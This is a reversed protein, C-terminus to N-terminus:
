APDVTVIPEAAADTTTVATWSSTTDDEKYVTLTTGALGTKNRIRRLANLPSRDAEGTVASMDRKLLADANELATPIDSVAAPAAPILDTKAKIAAVETDVYGTLTSLNAASALATLGAGAAGIEATDVLVAAIETAIEGFSGAAVHDAQAEDWVADAIAAATPASGGTPALELANTTYRYVAGDLELATDLKDTVAKIAAVETDVFDDIATVSAQTALATLGSGTGLATVVDAASHTSFGTATAWAADGRNRLAELSDTATDFTAGSMGTLTAPITTGTDVLIDDVIGDVVALNAATAYDAAALTRAVMETNTPPDYANLADTAEQQIQAAFEADFPNGSGTRTFAIGDASGSGALVINPLGDACTSILQQINLNVGGTGDLIAELNDAATADASIAGMDANIRGGVLAAPIRTQIDQTDAEIATASAQVAAVDASVSAGAPAGLRAFSDGTQPTNGTYTTVTDTLVVGQVKNTAPDYGADAFDKLDTASQADGGIQTLDVQFLDTGLIMADYIVAPLIMFEQFVPCHTAADTIALKARGLYNVNAAALELDYYGADDGTIHVMDNAGGSATPAADLVLTPVGGDDVIFTLKCSTVTLAVEPTVGDTKDLFPGVTIRTATNTRLYQM